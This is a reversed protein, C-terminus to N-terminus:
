SPAQMISNLRRSSSWPAAASPAAPATTGRLAPAWVVAFRSSTTAWATVDRAEIGM